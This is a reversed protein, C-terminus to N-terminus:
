EVTSPPQLPFIQPIWFVYNKLVKFDHVAFLILSRRQLIQHYRLINVIKQYTYPKETLELIKELMKSGKGQVLENIVKEIIHNGM